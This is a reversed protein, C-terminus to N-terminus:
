QERELMIKDGAMLRGLLRIMQRMNYRGSLRSDTAAVHFIKTM